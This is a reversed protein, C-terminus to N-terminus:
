LMGRSSGTGGIVSSLRTQETAAVGELAESDDVRHMPSDAAELVSEPAPQQEGHAVHDNAAASPRGSAAPESPARGEEGAGQSSRMSARSRTARPSATADIGHAASATRSTASLPRSQQQSSRRSASPINEHSHQSPESHQEAPSHLQAEVENAKVDSSRLSQKASLPKDPRTETDAESLSARAKVRTTEDGVSRVEDHASNCNETETHTPKAARISTRPTERKSSSGGQVHGVSSRVLDSASARGDTPMGEEPERSSWTRNEAGSAAAGSLRPSHGTSKTDNSEKGTSNGFIEARVSQEPEKMEAASSRHSQQNPADNGSVASENVSTRSRRSSRRSHSGDDLASAEPETLSKVSQRLSHAKSLTGQNSRSSKEAETPSHSDSEENQAVSAFKVSSQSQRMSHKASQRKPSLSHRSGSQNPQDDTKEPSGLSM